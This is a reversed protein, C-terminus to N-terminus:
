KSPIAAGTTSRAGIIDIYLVAVAYPVATEVFLVFDRPKTSKQQVPTTGLRDTTPFTITEPLTPTEGAPKPM